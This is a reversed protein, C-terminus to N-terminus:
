QSVAQGGALAGRRLRLAREIRTRLDAPGPHAERLWDSLTTSPVGLTAALESQTLGARALEIALTTRFTSRKKSTQM